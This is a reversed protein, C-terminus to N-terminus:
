WSTLAKPTVHAGRSSRTLFHLAGTPSNTKQGNNVKGAAVVLERVYVRNIIYRRASICYQDHESLCYVKWYIWTLQVRHDATRGSTEAVPLRRRSCWVSPKRLYLGQSLVPLSESEWLGPLLAQEQSELGYRPRGEM